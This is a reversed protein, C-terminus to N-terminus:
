KCVISINYLLYHHAFSYIFNFVFGQVVSDHKLVGHVLKFSLVDVTYLDGNDTGLYLRDNRKSM